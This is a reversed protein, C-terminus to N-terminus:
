QTPSEDVNHLHHTDNIFAVSVGGDPWVDISTLSCPATAISWIREHDIGLIESLVCMLPKRHSAIVVTGGVAIARTWAQSVRQALQRHSEGGPRVYDVDSRLLLLDEYASEALERLVRGDWDGFNQEDWDNDISPEIELAEGIAGGTQTARRLSSTIVSVPGDPQRGLHARVAGAAAKAQARGLAHLEPDAGGRGDLKSELTFDTVGHRVLLLRVPDSMSPPNADDPSQALIDPTRADGFVPAAGPTPSTAKSPTDVTEVDDIRVHEGDMGQNSLADAAGNLARPIWEFDVTGGAWEIQRVLDRAELALRRMDAHKIKWRGAMQEVVLKSDMRVDLVVDRELSLDLVAQLGAILGSYEAVNNSEKGLPAARQALVQESEPDRVLAGYGAVGPNGRSGGDAEIILRRPM